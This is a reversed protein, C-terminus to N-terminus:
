LSDCGDNWGYIFDYYIIKEDQSESWYLKRNTWGSILLYYYTPITISFRVHNRENVCRWCYYFGVLIHSCYGWLANVTNREKRSYCSCELNECRYLNTADCFHRSF